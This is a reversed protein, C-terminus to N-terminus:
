SVTSRVRAAARVAVLGRGGTTLPEPVHPQGVLAGVTAAASRGLADLDYGGELFVLRRGAPVLRALRAILDGYDGASLGMDTIPDARHADFGASVLLWTTNFQEIAPGVIEDFAARYTDGESGAPLPVNVTAGIGAGTGTEHAPGTGPYQPWEHLSVFLVRGDAYFVDQTGNGHHADIDVIAVREGRDALHRAAVAVNNLLCFGMATTASAHHGPPRVACFAADASGADLADICVLGAGAALRAAELSAPNMVTDADIRGGGREDIRQLRDLLSGDHVALLETLTAPRPAIPTTADALGAAAIGDLVATLRAPREPHGRGPDHDVFREHTCLLLTVDPSYM